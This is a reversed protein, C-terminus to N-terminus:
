MSWYRETGPDVCTGKDNIDIMVTQGSMLSTTPVRKRFGIDYMDSHMVQLDPNQEPAYKRKLAIKAGRETPYRKVIKGSATNVIMYNM